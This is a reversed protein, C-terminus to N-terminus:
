IGGYWSKMYDGAVLDPQGDGNIDASSGATAYPQSLLYDYLTDAAPGCRYILINGLYEVALEEFGDGDIDGINDVTKAFADTPLSDVVFPYRLIVDPSQGYNPGLFIYVYSLSDLHASMGVCIDKHGDGNWDIFGFNDNYAGFYHSADTIAFTWTPLKNISPCDQYYYLAPGYSLNPACVLLDALSEGGVDDARMVTGLGGNFGTTYISDYPLSGLSDRYGKYFYMVGRPLTARDYIYSSYVDKIGDGDLDIAGWVWGRLFMVPTTDPPNGGLFVWTGYPSYSSVFIDDFGDSNIDGLSGISWGITSNTDTGHFHFTVHSSDLKYNNAAIAEGRCVQAIFLVVALGGVVCLGGRAWRVWGFGNHIGRTIM